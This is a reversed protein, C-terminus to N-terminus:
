ALLVEIDNGAFFELIQPFSPSMEHLLPTRGLCSRAIQHDHWVLTFPPQVGHGKQLHYDMSGYISGFEGGPGNMAEGLALEFGVVDTIHSGDLHYTAGPQADHTRRAAR